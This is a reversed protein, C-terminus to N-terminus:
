IEYGKDEKFNNTFIILHGLEMHDFLEILHTTLTEIYVADVTMNLNLYARYYPRFYNIYDNPHKTDTILLEFIHLLGNQIPIVFYPFYNMQQKFCHICVGPLEFKILNRFTRQVKIDNRCIKCQM